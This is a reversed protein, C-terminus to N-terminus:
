ETEQNQFSKQNNLADAQTRLKEQGVCWKRHEEGFINSLKQVFLKYADEGTYPDAHAAYLDFQLLAQEVPTRYGTWHELIRFHGLCITCASIIFSIGVGTWDKWTHIGDIAKITTQIIPLFAALITMTHYLRKYIRAHRIYWIMRNQLSVRIYQVNGLEATFQKILAEQNVYLQKTAKRNQRWVKIKKVPTSLKTTVNIM